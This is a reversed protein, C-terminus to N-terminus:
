PTDNFPMTMGGPYAIRTLLVLEENEKDVETFRKVRHVSRQQPLDQLAPKPNRLGDDIQQLPEVLRIFADIEQWRRRM